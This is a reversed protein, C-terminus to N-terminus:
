DNCVEKATQSLQAEIKDRIKYVNGRTIQYKRAIDCPRFGNQLEAYVEQHDVRQRMPRSRPTASVCIRKKM